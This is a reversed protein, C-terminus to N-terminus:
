PKIAFLPQGYDVPEGNQAFVEAIRGEMEAKIENMVKMAEIICLVTDATVVDGEKVFPEADPSPSRYFTGVMPSKFVFGGSDGAAGTGPAAADGTAPIAPDVKAPAAAAAIPTVAVMSANPRDERMRVRLRRGGEEIEVEAAGAAAMVELVRRLREVDPAAGSGRTAKPSAGNAKHSSRKAAM